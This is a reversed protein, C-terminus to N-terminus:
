PKEGVSLPIELRRPPAGSATSLEASVAYAGPPAAIFYVHFDIQTNRLDVLTIEDAPRKGPPPPAPPAAAGAAPSVEAVPESPAAAPEVAVRLRSTKGLAAPDLLVTVTVGDDVFLKEKSVLLSWDGLSRPPGPTERYDVHTIRVPGPEYPVLRTCGASSLALLAITCALRVPKM